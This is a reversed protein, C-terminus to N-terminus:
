PSSVISSVGREDFRCGCRPCIRTVVSNERRCQPCLQLQSARALDQRSNAEEVRRAREDATAPLCAAVVLGIPGLVVGCVIGWTPSFGKHAFVYGGILGFVIWAVVSPFM